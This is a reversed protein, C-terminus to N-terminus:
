GRKRAQGAPPVNWQDTFIKPHVTPGPYLNRYKYCSIWKKSRIKVLIRKMGSFCSETIDLANVNTAAFSKQEEKHVNEMAWCVQGIVHFRDAVIIGKPLCAKVIAKFPSSMDMVVYRIDKRSEFTSFHGYLTEAKRNPLVDFVKEKQSGKFKEGGGNSKFGVISIVEPLDPKAYEVHNFIRAATKGSLNTGKAIISMPQIHQFEEIISAILRNKM